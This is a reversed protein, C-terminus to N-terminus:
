STAGPTEEEVEQKNDYNFYEEQQKRRLRKLEPNLLDDLTIPQTGKPVTTQTLETRM